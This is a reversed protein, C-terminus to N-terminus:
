SNHALLKVLAVSGRVMASILLLFLLTAVTLSLILWGGGNIYGPLTDSIAGIGAALVGLLVIAGLSGRLNGPFPAMRVTLCIMLYVFLWAPWGGPLVAITADVLVELLTVQDRLLQWVGALSTPISAAVPQRAIGELVRRGLYRVVFFIAIACALLPLLGIAVPGIIPIRPKADKTTGPEGTGDDKYLTTDNVTAGTVLLGLVHGLQAVLTGPLLIANVIRPRVMGSWLQHVGWASLVIILLWFTMAAYLM